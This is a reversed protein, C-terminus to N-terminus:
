HIGINLRLIWERFYVTTLKQQNTKRHLTEFQAFTSQAPFQAVELVNNAFNNFELLFYFNIFVM